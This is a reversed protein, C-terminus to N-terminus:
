GYMRIHQSWSSLKTKANIAILAEVNRAIFNVEFDKPSVTVGTVGELSPLGSSPAQIDFVHMINTFFLQLELQAINDGLCMRQGSSFPMFERPKVVKGEKSLFREPRFEEPQDWVDPDMHVAHLLPIVQANKPIVYGELEVTRDTAHTTGLPIVTSRRMVEYITAQTYPLNTMDDAVPLRHPGVVRDLEEHIKTRIEPNHMMHLLSWQITTKLTEVGASFIDLLIQRLQAEPDLGEFVEELTGENKATEIELLYADVLDRPSDKDFREKHDDVIFRVFELMESRCTTIEKITNAVGPIYQMIPFFALSGTTVFLRFGEDFLTMFRLFKPDKHHFRTSMIMSCIVNSIACNLIPAPNFPNTKESEISTLLYLTERTIIEEMNKSSAGAMNKIGFKQRHLFTRQKKWMQGDINIIGYGGLITSFTTQPRASYEHRAFAKKIIKPDSLVIVVQGGMRLSLIGGTYKKCKEFLYLHLEKNIFPIMGLIPLGVPGHPLRRNIRLHDIVYKSLLIILLTVFFIVLNWGVSVKSLEAAAWMVARSTLSTM